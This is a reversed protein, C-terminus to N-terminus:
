SVAFHHFDDIKQRREPQVFNRQLCPAHGPVSPLRGTTGALITVASGSAVALEVNNM